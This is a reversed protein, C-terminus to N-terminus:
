VKEIAVRAAEREKELQQKLEIGARRSAAQAARLEEEIRAKEALDSIVFVIFLVVTM